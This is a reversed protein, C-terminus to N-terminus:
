VSWFIEYIINFSVTDTHFLDFWRMCVFLTCVRRRSPKSTTKPECPSATFVLPAIRLCGHRCLRVTAVGLAAITSLPSFAAKLSLQKKRKFKTHLKGLVAVAQVQIQARSKQWHILLQADDRILHIEWRGFTLFLWGATNRCSMMYAARVVRGTELKHIGGPNPRVDQTKTGAARSGPHLIHPEPPVSIGQFNLLSFFHM